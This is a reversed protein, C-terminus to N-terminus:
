SSILSKMRNHFQKVAISHFLPYLIRDRIFSTGQYLTRHLILTGGSDNRSFEIWQTGYTKGTNLYCLRIIKNKDDVFDVEHCVALHAIGGLLSLNIMYIQGKKLGSFQDDKYTYQDKGRDYLAGFGVMKTNWIKAPHLHCYAEWVKNIEIKINFYLKHELYKDKEGNYCVPVIESAGNIGEKDFLERISPFSIKSYDPTNM